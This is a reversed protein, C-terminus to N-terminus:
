NMGEKYVKHILLLLAELPITETGAQIAALEKRLNGIPVNISKFDKFEPKKKPPM